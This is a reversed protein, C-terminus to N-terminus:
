QSGFNLLVTHPDSISGKRQLPTPGRARTVGNGLKDEAKIERYSDAIIHISHHSSRQALFCRRFNKSDTLYLTVRRALRGFRTTFLFPYNGWTRCGLGLCPLWESGRAHALISTYSKKRM